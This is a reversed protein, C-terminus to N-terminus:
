GGMSPTPKASQNPKMKAKKRYGIKESEQESVAPFIDDATGEIGDPGRSYLYYHKGQDILEYVFPKSETAGLRFFPEYIFVPNKADKQVLAKLDEPYKGNQLKYFELDKVVSTVQTQALQSKLEDFAGGREVFGKYFLTSYLVVTLLIGGAGLFVLPLGGEKRKMLGYVISVIGLPLGLLPIFSAGGMAYPLCGLKAKPADIVPPANM